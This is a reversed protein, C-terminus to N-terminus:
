CLEIDLVLRPVGTFNTPMTYSINWYEFDNIVTDQGGYAGAFTVTYSTNANTSVSVNAGQIDSWSAVDRKNAFTSVLLSFISSSNGYPYSLELRNPSVVATTANESAHLTIFGVGAGTNWQIVAPNFTSPNIAPGGVVNEDF